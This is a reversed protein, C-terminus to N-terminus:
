DCLKLRNQEWQRRKSMFALVLEKSSYTNLLKKLSHQTLPSCFQLSSFWATRAKIPSLSLHLFLDDLYFYSTLIRCSHKLSKLPTHSHTNALYKEFIKYHNHSEENLSYQLQFSMIDFSLLVASSGRNYIPNLARKSQM